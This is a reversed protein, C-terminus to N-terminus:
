EGVSVGNVVDLADAVAQVANRELRDINSLQASVTHDESGLNETVDLVWYLANTDLWSVEIGDRTVAGKYILRVKDGPRITTGWVKKLELSYIYQTESRQSMWAAAADYLANAARELDTATDGLAKVDPFGQVAEIRGHAAISTADQIYYLTEGGPGTMTQIPYPSSRTSHELTVSGQYGVPLVVNAVASVSREWSLTGPFVIEQNLYAEQHLTRRQVIRLGNDEGMAGFKLATGGEHRLHLGQQQALAQLAKLVSVGNYRITTNGLGADVDATWGALGALESVITTIAADDYERNLWTSARKLDDLADQGKVSILPGSASEKGTIGTIRGRGLERLTDGLEAYIAVTRGETLLQSSRIDSGPLALSFSGAGDLKRKVTALNVATLPGNGLRQGADDLVDVWLRM